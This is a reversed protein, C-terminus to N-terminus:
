TITLTGKMGAAEHGPVTCYFEYKGPKLKATVTSTGGKPVVKGKVRVGHGKIAIDHPLISLNKTVITVLGAKAKLSTTSYKMAVGPATSIRLVTKQAAGQAPLATVALAAVAAAVLVRIM